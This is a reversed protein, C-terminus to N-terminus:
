KRLVRQLWSPEGLGAPRPRPRKWTKTQGRRTNNQRTKIEDQRTQDQRTTDHRTTDHRTKGHKTKNQRTKTEDQRTQDQRTTDQRTTKQRTKHKGLRDQGRGTRDQKTKGTSKHLHLTHVICIDMLTQHPTTQLPKSGEGGWGRCLGGFHLSPLREVKAGIAEPMAGQAVGM